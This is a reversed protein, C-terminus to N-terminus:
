VKKDKVFIANKRIEIEAPAFHVSKAEGGIPRLFVLNNPSLIALPRTLMLVSVVALVLGVVTNISFGTILSSGLIIVSCALAFIPFPKANRLTMTRGDVTSQEDTMHEGEAQQRRKNRCYGGDGLQPTM